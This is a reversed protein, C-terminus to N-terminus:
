AWINECIAISVAKMLNDESITLEQKPYCIDSITHELQLMLM